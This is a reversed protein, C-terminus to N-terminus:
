VRGLESARRRWGNEFRAQRPDHAIIALYHADARQRLAQLPSRAGNRTLELRKRTQPGLQGDVNLAPTPILQNLARQLLKGATVTGTNVGLDFMAADFPRPLSWFGTKLFFLRLYLAEAHAPTLLRIDRGDVTGDRNLDFDALGDFNLDVLGEIALFRLSIGYKTHGGRDAPDNVEGGEIRLVRGFIDRWRLEHAATWGQPRPVSNPDAANM